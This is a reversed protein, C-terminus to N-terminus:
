RDRCAQSECEGQRVFAYRVYPSSEFALLNCDAASPNSCTSIVFGRAASSSAPALTLMMEILDPLIKPIFWSFLPSM